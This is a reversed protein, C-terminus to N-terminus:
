PTAFLRVHSLSQVSSFQYIYLGRDGGDQVERGGGVGDLEERNHFLVPNSNGADYLWNEIAM